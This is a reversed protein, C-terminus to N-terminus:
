QSAAETAAGPQLWDLLERGLRENAFFNCHHVHDAAGFVLRRGPPVPFASIGPAAEYCGRTPVVGDSEENFISDLFRGGVAATFRALPGPSTPVYHAAAAYYRASRGPSSHYRRLYDGSPLMSRLGPLSELAGHAVVKVLALVGEITLTFANDPLITLLNTYRDLLDLGHDANTLITGLNPVAILVAHRLRMTRGAAAYDSPREIMERAVLGGRSHTLVDLDLTSGEPLMEYFRSVNEQPSHHLTPHDFAFVRGGYARILGEMTSCPLLGFTAAARSFTGHVLLLARGEQLRDWQVPVSEDALPLARWAYPRRSAEWRSALALAGSGVLEDTAWVLVRVLRRGLRALLGRTEPEDEKAPVPASTRPLHFVVESGSSGRTSNGFKAADPEPLIWRCEGGEDTYLVAYGAEQRIRPVGLVIAPEGERTTALASGSRSTAAADIPRMDAVVKIEFDKLRVMDAAVIAAELREERIGDAGRTESGIPELEAVVAHLDPAMLTYGDDSIEVPLLGGDLTTRRAM